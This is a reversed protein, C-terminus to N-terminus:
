KLLYGVALRVVYGYSVVGETGNSKLYADNVDYMLKFLPSERHLRTLRSAEAIDAAARADLGEMIEYYRDADTSYLASALYEYMNVYASYRLYPDEARSLVFFAMFNAENERNIGRQHAMEHASTFVFTYDPYEANVNAEGTFYTYIGSIGMDSMVGSFFIPKIRSDFAFFFPYEESVRAYQESILRSMEGIDYPMETVPTGSDASDALANIEDRVIFLASYLEDATIDGDEEIGLHESLPTTNYPISMVTIYGSYLVAVVGLLAFVRRLLERGDRTRLALIIALVLAPLLLLLILEFVSFPAVYTLSAMLVRIPTAIYSNVFDATAASSAAIRLILTLALAVALAIVVWVPVVRKTSKM